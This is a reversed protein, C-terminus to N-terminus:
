GSTRKTIDFLNSEDIISKFFRRLMLSRDYCIKTNIQTAQAAVVASIVIIMIDSAPWLDVYFLGESQFHEHAIDVFM